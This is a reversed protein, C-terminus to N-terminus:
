NWRSTWLKCYQISSHLLLGHGEEFSDKYKEKLYSVRREWEYKRYICNRYAQSDGGVAVEREIAAIKTKMERLTVTPAAGAQGSAGSAGSSASGPVDLLFRQGDGSTGTAGGASEAPLWRKDHRSAITYYDDRGDVSVTGLWYRDTQRSSPLAPHADTLFIIAERGDWRTDRGARLDSARAEAGQSTEYRRGPAYGVALFEGGGSGKLYELVEFRHELAPYYGTDGARREASSSVSRLRVRAIVDAGAIREELSSPGFDEPGSGLGLAPPPSVTGTETPTCSIVVALALALMAPVGVPTLSWQCHGLRLRQLM